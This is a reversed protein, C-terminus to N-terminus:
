THRPPHCYMKVVPFLGHCDKYTKKQDVTARYLVAWPGTRTSFWQENCKTIYLKSSTTKVCCM